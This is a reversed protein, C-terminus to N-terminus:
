PPADLAAPPGDDLLPVANPIQVVRAARRRAGRGYDALDGSTPVSLADMRRTRGACTPPSRRATPATNM